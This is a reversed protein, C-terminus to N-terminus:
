TFQGPFDPWRSLRSVKAPELTDMICLNWQIAMDIRMNAWVKHLAYLTLLGHFACSIWLENHLTEIMAKCLVIWPNRLNM